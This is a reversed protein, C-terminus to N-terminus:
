ALVTLRIILSILIVLDYSFAIFPAFALSPLPNKRCFLKKVLSFVIAAVCSLIFVITNIFVGSVLGTCCVLKIDGAGISMGLIRLILLLLSPFVFGLLLNYIPEKSFFLNIIGASLLLVIMPNPIRRTKADIIGCVTVLIACIIIIMYEGYFHM